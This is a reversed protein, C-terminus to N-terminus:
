RCVGGSSSLVALASYSLAAEVLSPLFAHVTRLAGHLNTEIERWWDDDPDAGLVPRTVAIGADAVVLDIGDYADLVQAAGNEVAHSDTVVATRGSLPRTGDRSRSAASPAAESLAPTATM